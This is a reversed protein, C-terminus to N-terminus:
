KTQGGSMQGGSMNIAIGKVTLPHPYTYATYGDPETGDDYYDPVTGHGTTYDDQNQIYDDVIGGTPVVPLIPDENHDVNGWVYVPESAQNMGRGIQDCCPWGEQTSCATTIGSTSDCTTTCSQTGTGEAVRAEHLQIEAVGYGGGSSKDFTNNYIVGTGSRVYM